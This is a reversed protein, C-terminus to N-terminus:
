PRVKAVADEFLAAFARRDNEEFSLCHQAGTLLHTGVLNDFISEARALLEKGPFSVDHEAAMVFVKQTFGELDSKQILPPVRFDTNFYRFVDGLYPTWMPDHNTFMHRLIRDRNEDSPNMRHRLMPWAMKAFGSLMSGNVISGPVVLVLGGVRQPAHVCLQLAVSGGWSVAAIVPADLELADLVDTMFSAYEGTKFDLRVQKAHTSQGPINVAAIRLRESTGPIEHLAFPAGAAAGHLLVVQPADEPGTFVVDTHGFRTDIRRTEPADPLTEYFRDYWRALTALGEESKALKIEKM